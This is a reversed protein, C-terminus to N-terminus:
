DVDWEDGRKKSDCTEHSSEVNGWVVGQMSGISLALRAILTPRPLGGM